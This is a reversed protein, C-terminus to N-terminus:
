ILFHGAVLFLPFLILTRLAFIKLLDMFNLPLHSRLILVGVESMYILQSVSLGALVFRMREDAIGSAIVAPTFQELFGVLLGPAVMQAEPLTMWDLVVHIPWAIIDFVSTHFALISTITAIALSPGIVKALTTFAAKAGGLFLKPINPASAARSVAQMVAWNFLSVNGEREEHIQKGVPAYYNDSIARLPKLRVMIAACILCAGIVTLYWTFFMHDVKATAAIVLSFPLSVISFNTAVSAAERATYRGDEYQKLTILLGVSAAAVLSSTADIAARGPLTFLTEFPKRLLTGTFELFGFDTLFPLFLCAVLVTFFLGPGIEAFVTGGTDAAFVVAPGIEFYVMLGIAAGLLRMLFWGPTTDFMGFLLPKSTEWAPKRLLFYGAGVATVWVFGVLIELLFIEFPARVFDMIVGMVITSKGGVTVPTLFIFIGILSPLAFKLLGSLSPAQARLQDAKNTATNAVRPESQALDKSM